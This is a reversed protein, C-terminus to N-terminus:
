SYLALKRVHSNDSISHTNSHSSSSSSTNETEAAGSETGQGYVKCVRCRSVNGNFWMSVPVDNGGDVGSASCQLRRLCVTCTPLEVCLPPLVRPDREEKTHHDANENLHNNRNNVNNSSGEDTDNCQFPISIDTYNGVSKEDEDGMLFHFSSHASNMDDDAALDHTASSKEVYQNIECSKLPIM